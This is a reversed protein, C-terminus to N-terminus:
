LVMPKSFHLKLDELLPVLKELTVHEMVVIKYWSAEHHNDPILHYKDAIEETMSSSRIAVINSNPDRFYDLKLDDLQECLWDTRKQLVFIKEYWGNPGYKALIMWVAIANAGSRSGILTCDEGAVYSAQKTTAYHIYNKRILFIGTGYPAQAMKHADLTVSTVLPNSFNLNTTKHSFPYYFGGYAGDVHLKFNINRTSLNDTYLDINDISGFMTTIMNAIVIFYNIGDVSAKDLLEKLHNEDLQKTSNDTQVKLIPIGLINAAKDMSYHSDVSCLIAIEGSKAKKEQQFYNRYIWIAQINAETGGSAVYGDFQGIEGNLIDESCIAILEREIKQTGSFFSESEGLTHCGIHNPNQVLTSLYPTDNLFTNDQSFVKEDLYSAPLGLIIGKIYNVNESLASFITSNLEEQNYKKWKM